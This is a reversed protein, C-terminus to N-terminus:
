GEFEEALVGFEDDFAQLDLMEVGFFDYVLDEIHVTLATSRLGFEVGAQGLLFGLGGFDAGQHFLAPAVVSFFLENM